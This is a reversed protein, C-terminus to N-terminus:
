VRRTELAEGPGPPNMVARFAPPVQYVPKSPTKSEMQDDKIMDSERRIPINRAPSGEEYEEYFEESDRHRIAPRPRKVRKRVNGMVEVPAIVVIGREHDLLYAIDGEIAIFEYKNM